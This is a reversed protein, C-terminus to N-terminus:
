VQVSSRKPVIPAVVSGLSSQIFGWLGTPTVEKVAEAIPLIVIATTAIDYTIIASICEGDFHQTVQIGRLLLDKLQTNVQVEEETFNSYLDTYAVKLQGMRTRKSTIEAVSLMDDAMLRLRELFWNRSDESTFELSLADESGVITLSKSNRKWDKNPYCSFAYSVCGERIDAVDASNLLL